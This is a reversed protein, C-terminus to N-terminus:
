GMGGLGIREEVKYEGLMAGILPDRLMTRSRPREADMSSDTDELPVMALEPPVRIESDTAPDSSLAERKATPGNHPGGYDELPRIVTPEVAAAGRGGTGAAHRMRGYGGGAPPAAPVDDELVLPTGDQPCIATGLPVALGCAPCEIA